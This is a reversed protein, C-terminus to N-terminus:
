RRKCYNYHDVTLNYFRRQFQHLKRLLLLKHVFCYLIVGLFAAIVGFFIFGCWLIVVFLFGM